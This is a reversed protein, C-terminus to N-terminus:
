SKDRKWVMLMTRVKGQSTFETPRERNISSQCITLTDGEMKFIARYTRPRGTTTTLDMAWPSKAPDIQLKMAYKRGRTERIFQGDKIELRYNWQQLTAAPIQRGRSELSVISWKGELRQMVDKVPDTKKPKPPRDAVTVLSAALMLVIDLRV